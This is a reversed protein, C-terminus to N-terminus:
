GLLMTRILTKVRVMRRAFIPLPRNLTSDLKVRAKPLLGNGVLLYRDELRRDSTGACALLVDHGEEQLRLAMGLGAYHLTAVVFRM